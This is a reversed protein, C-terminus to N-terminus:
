LVLNLCAFPKGFLNGLELVLQSDFALHAEVRRLDVASDPLAEEQEGRSTTGREREKEREREVHVM